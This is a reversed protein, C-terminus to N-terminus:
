LRCLYYFILIENSICIKLSIMVMKPTILDNLFLIIKLRNQNCGITLKAIQYKDFLRVLQDLMLPMM